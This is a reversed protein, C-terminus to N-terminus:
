LGDPTAREFSRTHHGLSVANIADAGLVWCFVKVVSVAAEVVSTLATM